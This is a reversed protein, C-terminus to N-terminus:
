GLPCVNLGSVGSLIPVLDDATDDRLSKRWACRDALNGPAKIDHGTQNIAPPMIQPGGRRAKGLHHDRWPRVM